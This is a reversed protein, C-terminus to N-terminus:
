KHHQPQLMYLFIGGAVSVNLSEFLGAMAISVLECCQLTQESLGNGESGLVLCLPEGLLSDALARSLSSTKTLGESNNEPHGALMKMQFRSRMSNLHSWNGYVLPLQFSAGRAARLVKENFPDCCGPLLFVGDWKLALASRLLTGLNGPDQIGDLVLIRHPSPFWNGYVGEEQNVNMDYFSSPLRLIAIGETSEVSQMGSLKKMVNPSVHVVSSYSDNFVEPIETGDLLLLCDVMPPEDVKFDQYQCIEMIPTLGVVLASSQSRRYSSSQRLKVCHKVLPNSTSTITGRRRKEVQKRRGDGAAAELPAAAARGRGGSWRVIIVPPSSAAMLMM